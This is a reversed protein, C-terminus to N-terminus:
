QWVVRGPARDFVKVGDVVDNVVGYRVALEWSLDVAFGIEELYAQDHAAGCDAVLHPGSLKGDPWELWIREDLYRCDRVAVYGDHFQSLNLQGWKLRNDVVQEMVGPAYRTARGEAVPSSLLICAALIQTV